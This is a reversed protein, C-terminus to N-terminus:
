GDAAPRACSLTLEGALSQREALQAVCGVMVLILCSPIYVGFVSLHAVTYRYLRHHGPTLCGLLLALLLEMQRLLWCRVYHM